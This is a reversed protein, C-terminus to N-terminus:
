DKMREPYRVVEAAAIWEAELKQYNEQQKAKLLEDHLAEKM